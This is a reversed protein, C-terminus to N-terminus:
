KVLSCNGARFRDDAISMIKNQSIIWKDVPLLMGDADRRMVREKAYSVHGSSLHIQAFQSSIAVVVDFHRRINRSTMEPRSRLLQFITEDFWRRFLV